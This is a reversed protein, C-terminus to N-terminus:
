GSIMNPGRNPQLIGMWLQNMTQVALEGARQINDAGVGAGREVPTNIAAHGPGRM